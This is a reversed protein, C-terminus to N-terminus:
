FSVNRHSGRSLIRQSVSAELRVNVITGPELFDLRLKEICIRTGEMQYCATGLLHNIPCRFCRRLKESSSTLVIRNSDSPDFQSTAKLEFAFVRTDALRLLRKDPYGPGSCAKIQHHQLHRNINEVFFDAVKNGISQNSTGAVITLPLCNFGREQFARQFDACISEADQPGWCAILPLPEAGEWRALSEYYTALDGMHSLNGAPSRRALLFHPVQKLESARSVGERPSLVAAHLNVLQDHLHFEQFTAHSQKLFFVADQARIKVRREGGSFECTVILEIFAAGIEAAPLPKVFRPKTAFFSVLPLQLFV